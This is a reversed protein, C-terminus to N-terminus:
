SDNVRKRSEQSSGIEPMEDKWLEPVQLTLLTPKTYARKKASGQLDDPAQEPKMAPPQQMM